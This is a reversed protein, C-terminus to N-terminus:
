LIEALHEFGNKQITEMVQQRNRSGIGPVIIAEDKMGRLEGIEKVPINRIGKTNEHIHTVALYDVQIGQRLLKETAEVAYRGAGYVIVTPFQKIKDIAQESVSSLKREYKQVCLVRFLHREVGPEFDTEEMENELRFYGCKVKTLIEELYGSLVPEVEAPMPHKRWFDLLVCYDHFLSRIQPPTEETSLTGGRRRYVHYEKNVIVMRNGILTARLSFLLDEAMFGDEFRLHNGRLFATKWLRRWLSNVYVGKQKMARFLEPGSCVVGELEKMEYHLPPCGLGETEELLRSDFFVCEVQQQEAYATLEEIANPLLFDDSDLYYTYEGQAQMFGINRASAAGRNVENAILKIRADKRAYGKAIELSRDGSADEVCIIELNPYTQQLVSDLCEGLYKEVNYIPIIISVLPNNKM